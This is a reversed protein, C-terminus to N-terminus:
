FALVARVSCVSSSKGYIFVDGDSVRMRLARDAPYYCYESSSWYWDSQLGSVGTKDDFLSSRNQYVNWMQGISPLYWGSSNTPAKVKTEYDVVAYYTAPYGAQETANLNEKGGAGQTIIKQTWAYGNWDIDPNSYNNQKNGSGDTPYCGLETGYVGWMCYSSTADTLAVAYGHCKESGIGTSSYDSGDNAHHGAHFVIAIVTKDSEPAPEPETWEMTGDAYLKRLGGDSWTGDSYYYDGAKLDDAKYATYSEVNESNGSDNWEGGTATTVEIGDAKVTITYSNVKGAMLIGSDETTPTYTLTNNNMSVKIFAKNTMDQPVFLAAGTRTDGNYCSTIEGDTQDAQELVGDKFTATADGLLTVVATQLEEDTVGDGQLTYSVKAMQHKFSLSVTSQYNQEEATATLFDFAAFGESQDSIDVNTQEGYPYWATVTASATNQWYVPTIIEKVSGNANLEYHGTAGDAGIRVGIEDGDAWADKGSTRTAMGDVRATLTLPYEGDPLSGGQPKDAFDDQSCSALGAGLLMAAALSRLLQTKSRKM